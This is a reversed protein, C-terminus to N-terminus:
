AVGEKKEVKKIVVEAQGDYLLDYFTKLFNEPNFNKIKETEM